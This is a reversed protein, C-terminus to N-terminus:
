LMEKPDFNVIIDHWQNYKDPPLLLPSCRPDRVARVASDAAARFRDDASYRSQDVVSAQQVTRDPLVIVRVDIAMDEAGAMGAPINWCRSLQDRLAQVDSITLTQDMQVAEPAPALANLKEAIKDINDDPQPEIKALNKILSQFNDTAPKKDDPKKEAQKTEKPPEPKKEPKKEATKKPPALEDQDPVPKESVEPKKDAPKSEEKPKPPTPTPAVSTKAPPPTKVQKKTAEEDPKDKPPSKVPPRNSQTIDAITALEVSIAPPPTHERRIYPMGITLALVVAVHLVVSAILAGRRVDGRPAGSTQNSASRIPGNM